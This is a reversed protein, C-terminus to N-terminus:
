IDAIEGAPLYKNSYSKGEGLHCGAFCGSKEFTPAMIALIMALKDEYYPNDDGRKDAPDVLQKWSGDRPVQV